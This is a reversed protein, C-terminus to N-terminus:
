LTAAALLIFLLLRRGTCVLLLLVLRCRRRGALLLTPPLLLRPICRVLVKIRNEATLPPLPATGGAAGTCRRHMAVHVHFRARGKGRTDAGGAWM